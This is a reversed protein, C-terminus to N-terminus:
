IHILSLVKHAIRRISNSPGKFQVGKFIENQGVVDWLRFKITITDNIVSVDGVVLLDSNIARWDAFRVPSDISTVDSIYSGDPVIRFLATQLLDNKVVKSIENAIISSSFDTTIFNPFAIPIPEVVGETVDIDLEPVNEQSFVLGYQFFVLFLVVWSYLNLITSYRENYKKKYNIYM